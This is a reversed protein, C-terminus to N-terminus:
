HYMYGGNVVVLQGTVFDSDPSALYVLTGTLDEPVQIRKLARREVSRELADGGHDLAAKTATFGPAVANVCIGDPGLESALARTLAVVAGKSASYHLLGPVGSLVVDSSINIIKGAASQRLFPLAARTMQWPGKVNVAMVRDWEEEDIEESPKRDIGALAAANNVVIDVAGFVEQTSAVTAAVSEYSTVDTERGLVRNTTGAIESATAVAADGLLDAIMVTGGEAVFREVIARGIGRAGGTVIATKGALKGTM